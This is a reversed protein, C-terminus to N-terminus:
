GKGSKISLVALDLYKSLEGYGNKKLRNALFSDIQALLRDDKGELSKVIYNISQCMASYVEEKSNNTNELLAFHGELLDCYIGSHLLREDALDLRRFDDIFFPIFSPNYKAQVSMDHIFRISPIYWSIYTAKDLGNIFELEERVSKRIQDHFSLKDKDRDHSEEKPSQYLQKHMELLRDDRRKHDALFSHYLRNEKSNRFKFNDPNLIDHGAIRIDSNNLVLEIRGVDPIELYGMGIYGDPYNLQFRGRKDTTTTAAEVRELGNYIFLRIEHNNRDTLRGAVNACKGCFSNLILLICAVITLQRM